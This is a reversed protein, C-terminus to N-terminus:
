LQFLSVMDDINMPKNPQLDCSAITAIEDWISNISHICPLECFQASCSLFRVWFTDPILPAVSIWLPSILLGKPCGRGGQLYVKHSEMWPGVLLSVAHLMGHPWDWFSQTWKPLPLPLPMTKTWIRGSGSELALPINPLQDWPPKNPLPSPPLLPFSALLPNTILAIGEKPLQFKMECPSLNSCVGSIDWSLSSSATKWSYGKAHNTSSKQTMWKLAEPKDQTHISWATAVLCLKEPLSDCPKTAPLRRHPSSPASFVHDSFLCM